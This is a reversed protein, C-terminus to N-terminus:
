PCRRLNVPTGAAWAAYQPHDLPIFLQSYLKSYYTGDIDYLAVPTAYRVWEVCPNEGPREGHHQAVDLLDIANVVGDNNVDVDLAPIEDAPRQALAVTGLAVLVSLVTVLPM